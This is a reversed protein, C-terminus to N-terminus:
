GLVEGGKLIQHPLGDNAQPYSERSVKLLRLLGSGTQVLRDNGLSVVTGPTLGTDKEIGAPEAEWIMLRRGDLFGYAGPYPWTVARILNYIPRVGMSWDIRGDEPRRGGFYTAKSQDQPVRPATGDLLKPIYQELIRAAAHELKIFLSLATDRDDIDVAYQAVIDGADAQKVMHHLTVGGRTEGNLIQWNVPCRGRYRPLLSGHLNVAAIRAASLIDEKIMQRFYCSLLLDPGLGKIMDPWPGSNIDDPYYVPIDLRKALEGLSDFWRNEHPDDLHTFVAPINIGLRTLVKLAM